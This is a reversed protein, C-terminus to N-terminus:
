KQAPKLDSLKFPEDTYMVDGEPTYFEVLCFNKDDSIDIINGVRGDPTIVRDFEHVVM